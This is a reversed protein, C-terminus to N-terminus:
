GFCERFLECLLSLDSDIDGMHAVRFVESALDGQGAYIVFGHEKLRDHLREYSWGEPLM